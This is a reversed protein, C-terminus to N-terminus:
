NEIAESVPWIHLICICDWSLIKLIGRMLARTATMYKMTFWTYMCYPAWVGDFYATNTVKDGDLVSNRL